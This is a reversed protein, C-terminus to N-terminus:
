RNDTATLEDATAYPVLHLIRTQKHRRTGSSSKAKCALLCKHTHKAALARRDTHTHTLSLATAATAKTHTLPKVQKAAVAAAALM